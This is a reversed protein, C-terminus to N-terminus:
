PYWEQFPEVKENEERREEERLWWLMEEERKATEVEAKIRAERDARAQAQLEENIRAEAEAILQRDRLTMSRTTRGPPQDTSKNTQHTTEM